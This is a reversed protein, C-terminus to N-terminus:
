GIIGAATVIHQLTHIGLMIGADKLSAINRSFGYFPSNAVKLVRAALAQDQGIKNMLAPLDVNGKEIMSLVEMVIMSLSPLQQIENDLHELTLNGM